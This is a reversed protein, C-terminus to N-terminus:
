LWGLFTPESGTKGQRFFPTDFTWLGGSGNVLKGFDPILELFGHFQDGGDLNATFKLSPWIGVVLIRLTAM